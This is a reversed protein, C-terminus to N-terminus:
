KPKRKTAYGVIGGVSAVGVAGIACGALLVWGIPNTAAITVGLYAGAGAVGAGAAGGAVAGAGSGIAVRRVNELFTPPIFIEQDELEKDKNEDNEERASKLRYMNVKILAAKGESSSIRQLCEIWFKSLWLNEDSELLKIEKWFGVPIIKMGEDFFTGLEKTIISKFDHLNREFAVKLDDNSDCQYRFASIAVNTRTLLVLTMQWVEGGLISNIKKIMKQVINDPLYRTDSMDICFLFLNISACKEAVTDLIKDTDCTPDLLGPTDWITVTANREEILYSQIERTCGQVGIGGVVSVDALKKGLLGNILTSKGVGPKGLIMITLDTKSDLLKRNHENVADSFTFDKADM